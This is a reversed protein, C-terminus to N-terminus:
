KDGWINPPGRKKPGPGTKRVPSTVNKEKRRKKGRSEKTSNEELKGQGKKAKVVPPGIVNNRGERKRKSLRVARKQGLYADWKAEQNQSGTEKAHHQICPGERGGTPAPVAGKL